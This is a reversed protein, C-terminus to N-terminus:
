GDLRMGQEHLQVLRPLNWTVRKGLLDGLTLGSDRRGGYGDHLTAVRRRYHADLCAWAPALTLVLCTLAPAVGRLYADHAGEGPACVRVTDTRADPRCFRPFAVGCASASADRVVDTEVHCIQGATTNADPIPAFLRFCHTVPPSNTAEPILTQFAPVAPLWLCLILVASYWVAQDSIFQLRTVAGVVFM